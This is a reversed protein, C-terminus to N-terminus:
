AHLSSSYGCTRGRCGWNLKCMADEMLFLSCWSLQGGSWLPLIKWHGHKMHLNGSTGSPEVHIVQASSTPALLYKKGLTSFFKKHPSLDMVKPQCAKRGRECRVNLVQPSMLAACVSCLGFGRLREKPSAALGASTGQPFATCLFCPSSQMQELVPRGGSACSFTDVEMLGPSIVIAKKTTIIRLGHYKIKHSWLGM